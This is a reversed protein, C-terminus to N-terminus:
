GRVCNLFGAGGVGADMLHVYTRLTFSADAHGLWEAVRKVNRGADFALLRHHPPAHPLAPPPVRVGSVRIIIARRSQPHTRATVPKRRYSGTKPEFAPNRNRATDTAEASVRSVGLLQPLRKV